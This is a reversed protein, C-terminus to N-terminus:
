LYISSKLLKSIEEKPASNHTTYLLLFTALYTHDSRAACRMANVLRSTPLTPVIIMATFFFSCHGVGVYKLICSITLSMFAEQKTVSSRTGSLLSLFSFSFFALHGRREHAVHCDM